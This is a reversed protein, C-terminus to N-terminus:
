KTPDVLHGLFLWTATPRDYIGFFFPRDVTISKTESVSSWTLPVATAAAAEVGHEDVGLMTKHLVHSIALPEQALGSFDALQGDFADKMGLAILTPAFDMTPTTLRFKPLKLTVPQESMQAMLAQLTTASLASELQALSSSIKPLLVVFSIEKGDLPIAVAQTSDNEAYPFSLHGGGSKFSMFPVSVKTGDAKTFQGTATDSALFPDAWPLKLYLANVLVCRTDADVFGPLILDEIRNFTEQSVWANIALREKEPQGRFDALRLGAGFGTALTDLYANQRGV